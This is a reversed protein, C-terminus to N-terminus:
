EVDATVPLDVARVIRAVVAATEDRGLREGDPVGLAWSVGSSTTAIAVAGAAAIVAASAADWANPLVFSGQQHLDHFRRAHDTMRSVRGTPATTTWRIEAM